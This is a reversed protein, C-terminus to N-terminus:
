FVLSDLDIVSLDPFKRCYFRQELKLKRKAVKEAKIRGYAISEPNTSLHMDVYFRRYVNFADPLDMQVTYEKSKRDFTIKEPGVSLVEQKTDLDTVTVLNLGFEENLMLGRVM